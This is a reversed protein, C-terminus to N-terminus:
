VMRCNRKTQKNSNWKRMLANIWTIEESPLKRLLHNGTELSLTAKCISDRDEKTIETFTIM